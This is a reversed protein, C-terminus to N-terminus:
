TWRGSEFNNQPWGGMQLNQPWGWVGESEVVAEWRMGAKPYSTKLDVL